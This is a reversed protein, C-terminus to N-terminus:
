PLPETVQISFQINNDRALESIPLDVSVGPALDLLRSKFALLSARTGANGEVIVVLSSTSQQGTSFSTVVIPGRVAAIAAIAAIAASFPASVTSSALASMLASSKILGNETSELVNTEDANKL